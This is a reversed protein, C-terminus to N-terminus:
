TSSLYNWVAGHNFKAYGGIDNEAGTYRVANHIEDLAPSEGLEILDGLIGALLGSIIPAAFSTGAQIRINTLSSGSVELVPALVDPAANHFSINGPWLIEKCSEECNSSPCCGRQGCFPGHITDNEVWWQESEDGRYIDATCLPLYGGVGIVSDILAPCHVGVRGIQHEEKNGTAAVICVEDIEVALEAERSVTCLGNCEHPIGVSLNLIDMDMDAADAIADALDGRNGEFEPVDSGGTDDKIDMIQFTSFSSETVLTRIINLVDTGHGIPDDEDHDVYDDHAGEFHYEEKFSDPPKGLSDIVGVHVGDGHESPEVVNLSM